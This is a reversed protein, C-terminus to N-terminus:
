FQEMARLVAESKIADEQKGEVVVVMQSAGIFNANVKRAAVTYPHDPYMLADGISVTGVRLQSSLYLGLTFSLLLAVVSLYRRSSQSLWVLSRCMGLYFRDSLRAGAKPDHRPPPIVSLLVPHLTIVSV